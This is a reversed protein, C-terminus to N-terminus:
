IEEKFCQRQITTIVVVILLVILAMAAALGVRNSGFATQMTQIVFTGTGNNGGTMIYPIEFAKIAGSVTLILNIELIRKISPLVIYITEQWANAGDIKAADFLDGPISQMAGLFMVFNFGFYRWFCTFALSYNAIDADTIWYQALGNLGIMNLISNLTGDFRFFALFILGIAVGNLMYPFVIIGKFFNKFKLKRNVLVALLFAFLLQLIGSVFYYLSNKFLMWYQSHTFIRIYNHLGVFNYDPSFGDWDTFGYFMMLVVPIYTFLILLGFPISLFSIILFIKQKKYSLNFLM